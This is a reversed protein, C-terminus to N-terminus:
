GCLAAPCLVRFIHRAVYEPVVIAPCGALAEFCHV